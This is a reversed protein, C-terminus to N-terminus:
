YLITRNKKDEPWYCADAAPCRWCMRSQKDAWSLIDGLADSTERSAAQRHGSIAGKILKREEPTFGAEPLVREAFAAGAEAHDVGERYQAARGIDHLLAAAYIVDKPIPLRRELVHIYAIRAVDLLHEWGHGCFIREAECSVIQEMERIYEPHELIRDVRPM